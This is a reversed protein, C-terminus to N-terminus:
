SRWAVYRVRRAGAAPCWWRGHVMVCRSNQLLQLRVNLGAPTAAASNRAAEAAPRVGLWHSTKAADAMKKMAMDCCNWAQLWVSGLRRGGATTVSCFALRMMERLAWPMWWRLGKLAGGRGGAAHGGQM